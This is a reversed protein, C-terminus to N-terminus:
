QSGAGATWTPQGTWWAGQPYGLQQQPYHYHNHIQQPPRAELESVKRELEEIRKLAQKLNM